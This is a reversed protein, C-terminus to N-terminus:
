LCIYFSILAVRIEFNPLSHSPKTGNLRTQKDWTRGTNNVNEARKEHLNKIFKQNRVDAEDLRLINNQLKAWEANDEAM